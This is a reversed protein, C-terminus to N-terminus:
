GLRLEIDRIVCYKAFRQDLSVRLRYGEPRTRLKFIM